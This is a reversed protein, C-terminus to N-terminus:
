LHFPNLWSIKGYTVVTVPDSPEGVGASSKASVRFKYLADVELGSITYETKTVQFSLLVFIM